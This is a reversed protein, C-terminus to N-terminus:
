QSHKLKLLVLLEVVVAGCSTMGVGYWYARCDLDSAPTPDPAVEGSKEQEPVKGEM